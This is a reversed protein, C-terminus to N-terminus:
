PPAALPLRVLLGLERPCPAARLCKSGGLSAVLMGRGVEALAAGLAPLSPLPQAAPLGLPVQAPLWLGPQKKPTPLSRSLELSGRPLRETAAAMPGAQLFMPPIPAVPSGAPWGSVWWGWPSTGPGVQTWCLGM